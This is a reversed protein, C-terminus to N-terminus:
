TSKISRTSVGSNAPLRSGAAGPSASRTRTLCSTANGAVPCPRFTAVRKGSEQLIVNVADIKGTAYLYEPLQFSDAAQQAEREWKKRYERIETPKMM